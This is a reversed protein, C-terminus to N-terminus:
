KEIRQAMEARVQEAYEGGRRRAEDLVKTSETKERQRVEQLLTLAKAQEDREIQLEALQQRLAPAAATLLDAEGAEMALQQKLNSVLLQKERDAKDQHRAKSSSSPVPSEPQYVRMEQRQKTAINLQRESELPAPDGAPREAPKPPRQASRQSSHEYRSSMEEEIDSMFKM